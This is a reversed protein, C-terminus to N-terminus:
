WAGGDMPNELCSYQLPKGYAEGPGLCVWFSSLYKRLHNLTYYTSHSNLTYYTFGLAFPILDGLLLFTKQSSFCQCHGKGSSM